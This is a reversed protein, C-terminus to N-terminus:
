SEKRGEWERKKKKSRQKEGKERRAPSCSRNERGKKKGETLYFVHFHGQRKGGWGGGGRRGLKGGRKKGEPVTPDGEGKKKKKRAIGARGCM